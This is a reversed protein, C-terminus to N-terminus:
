SPCISSFRLTRPSFSAPRSGNSYSTRTATAFRMASSPIVVQPCTDTWCSSLRTRRWASESLQSLLERMRDLDATSTSGDTVVKVIEKKIQAQAHYTQLKLALDFALTTGHDGNLDEGTVRPQGSALPYLPSSEAAEWRSAPKVTPLSETEITKSVLTEFYEPQDPAVNLESFLGGDHELEEYQYRSPYRARRNFYRRNPQTLDEASRM